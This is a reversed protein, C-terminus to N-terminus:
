KHVVRFIGRVAILEGEKLPTKAHVLVDIAGTEDEITWIDKGLDPESTKFSAVGRIVITENEFYSYNSKLYEIETANPPFTRSHPEKVIYKGEIYMSKIETQSMDFWTGQAILFVLFTLSIIGVILVVYLMIIKTSRKKARSRHDNRM